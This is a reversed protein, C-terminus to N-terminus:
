PAFQGTLTKSIEDGSHIPRELLSQLHDLKSVREGPKEM